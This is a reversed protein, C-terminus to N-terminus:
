DDPLTVDCLITVACSLKVACLLGHFFWVTHFAPVNSSGAHRCAEKRREELCCVWLLM